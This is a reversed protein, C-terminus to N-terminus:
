GHLDLDMAMAGESAASGSGASAPVPATTEPKLDHQHTSVSLQPSMVAMPSQFSGATTIVAVFDGGRGGAATFVVPHVRYPDM